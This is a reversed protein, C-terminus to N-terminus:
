QTAKVGGRRKSVLAAPMRSFMRAAAAALAMVLAEIEEVNVQGDLRAM